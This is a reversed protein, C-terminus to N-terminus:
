INFLDSDEDNINGEDESVNKLSSVSSDDEVNIV